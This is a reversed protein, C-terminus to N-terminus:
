QPVKSLTIQFEINAGAPIRLEGSSVPLSSEFTYGDGEPALFWIPQDVNSLRFSRVIGDRSDTATVRERVDIDDIQYHCEPHGEVLRYGRFRRQPIHRREGVRFPFADARYFVDGLVDATRTLKTERDRKESLTGTMDVFGGIWAYRLRSEGADFCYSVGGPLGVAIAAPTAEPMDWRIVIPKGSPVPLEESGPKSEAQEFGEPLPMEDGLTLAAWLADIKARAEDAPLSGFYNPMSTGSLVRAPDRMWRQFWDYRVRQAVHTLAPGEEGLAHYEAFGHCGICGLGGQAANTGLMHVGKASVSSAQPPAAPRAGPQLGAACVFGDVLPKVQDASYHPMRLEFEAESRRGKILVDHLWEPTMRSGLTTLPPAKQSIASTPSSADM